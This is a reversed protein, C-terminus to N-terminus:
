GLESLADLRPLLSRFELGEFVRRLRTTAARTLARVPEGRPLPVERVLTALGEHLRLEDRRGDLVERFRAPRLEVLHALIGDIDGYARVWASATKVGVGPVKPLNDAPDGILAVVTPLREPSVGFRAEVAAADYRVHPQGRRGVFLVDTGPGVIQLLDRDGSVVLCATGRAALTSALTALVDDAEFGPAQLAPAQTADLLERLRGRQEALEAPVRERTGKYAPYVEHRFTDGPTDLAFALAPPREERLLKLLLASFGYLANTPEGAATTMRPLAHFARYFLSYTDLLLVPREM